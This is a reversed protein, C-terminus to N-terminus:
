ECLGCAWAKEWDERLYLLHIRSRSIKFRIDDSRICEMGPEIEPFRKIESPILNRPGRLLSGSLTLLEVELEQRSFEWLKFPHKIHPYALSFTQLNRFSAWPAVSMWLPLTYDLYSGQTLLNLPLHDFININSTFHSISALFASGQPTDALLPWQDTVCGSLTLSRTKWPLASHEYNVNMDAHSNWVHELCDLLLDLSSWTLALSPAALLVPALLSLAFKRAPAYNSTNLLESHTINGGYEGIWIRRIHDAYEVRLSPYRNQIDLSRVFARVNASQPLLITHLLEPLVVRRVDKSVRCLALAMSYPNQTAYRDTQTFTPIAAIRLIHFILE